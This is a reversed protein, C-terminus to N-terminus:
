GDSALVRALTAAIGERRGAGTILVSRTVRTM